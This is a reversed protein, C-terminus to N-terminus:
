TKEGLGELFGLHALVRACWHICDYADRSEIGWIYARNAEQQEGRDQLNLIDKIFIEVREELFEVAQKNPGIYETPPQRKNLTKDGLVDDILSNINKILIDRKSPEAHSEIEELLKPRVRIIDERARRASDTRHYIVNYYHIYSNRAMRLKHSLETIKHDLLHEQEAWRILNALSPYDLERKKRGKKVEQKEKDRWKKLVGREDLRVVLAIELALSAYYVTANAFLNIYADVGESLFRIPYYREGEEGIPIRRLASLVQHM